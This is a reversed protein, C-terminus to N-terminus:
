VGGSDAGSNISGMERTVVAGGLGSGDVALSEVEWCSRYIAIGGNRAHGMCANDHLVLLGLVVTVSALSSNLRDSSYRLRGGFWGCFGLDGSGSQADRSAQFRSSAAM